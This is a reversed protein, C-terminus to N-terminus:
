ASAHGGRRAVHRLCWRKGALWVGTGAAYVALLMGGGAAHAQPRHIWLLAPVVILVNWALYLAVVRAHSLGTRVLWQYLHERHASYWRRGRLMRSLLTCTADVVFGSAAIPGSAAAVGPRMALMVVLLAVWLGLVGSGVDGMFVRAHPFNFPLFGLIAALAAAAGLAHPADGAHAFAAAAVACVFAAQMALIGNIGDMFNHLNISWVMAVGVALTAAALLLRLQSCGLALPLVCASRALALALPVLWLAVAAFHLLLRWRAALGRHDDIWGAAGVLALAGAISWAEHRQPWWLLVVALLTLVIGIGGGRPTAQAHSRRRGPLDLLRRRRAYGIALATLAASALGCALLLLAPVVGSTM